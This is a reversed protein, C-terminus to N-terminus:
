ASYDEIGYRDTTVFAEIEQVDSADPLMSVMSYKTGVSIYRSFYIRGDALVQPNGSGLNASGYIAPSSAVATLSGDVTLRYIQELLSGSTRSVMVYSDDLLWARSSVHPNWNNSGASIAMDGTGNANITRYHKVNGLVNGLNCYLIRNSLNAWSFNVGNNSDSADTKIITDSAGASTMVHLDRGASIANRTMYAILTGDYNYKPYLRATTGTIGAVLTTRGTGDANITDIQRDNNTSFIIKTSNPHWQPSLIQTAVSVATTLQTKVATAIDYVWLNQRFSADTFVYLIKTQDPSVWPAYVFRSATNEFTTVVPAVPPDLPFFKGVQTPSTFKFYAGFMDVAFTGLLSFKMELDLTPSM